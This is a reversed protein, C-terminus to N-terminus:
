APPITDIRFPRYRRDPALDTTKGKATLVAWSFTDGDGLGISAPKFRYIWTRRKAVFKNAGVKRYRKPLARFVRPGLVLYEFDSTRSGKTNILLFPRTNKKAPTLRGHMKIKFKLRHGAEDAVYVRAIDIAPKRKLGKGDGKRDRIADDGALAPM